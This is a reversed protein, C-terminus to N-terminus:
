INVFTVALSIPEDTNAVAKCSLKAAANPIRGESILPTTTQTEGEVPITETLKVSETGLELTLPVNDPNIAATSEATFLPM